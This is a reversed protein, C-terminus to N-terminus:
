AKRSFVATKSPHSCGMWVLPLCCSLMVISMSLCVQRQASFGGSVQLASIIIFFITYTADRQNYLICMGEQRPCSAVSECYGQVTQWICHIISKMKNDRRWNILGRYPSNKPIIFAVSEWYYTDPLPAWQCPLKM